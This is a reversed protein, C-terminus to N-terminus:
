THDFLVRPLKGRELIHNTCDPLPLALRVQPYPNPRGDEEPRAQRGRNLSCCVVHVKTEQANHSQQHHLLAQLQPEQSFSPVTTLRRQANCLLKGLEGQRPIARIRVRSLKGVNYKNSIRM